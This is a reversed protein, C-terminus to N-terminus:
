RQKLGNLGRIAQTILSCGTALVAQQWVESSPCFREKMMEKIRGSLSSHGQAFCYLWNDAQLALLIKPVSETGFEAAVCTWAGLTQSQDFAQYISGTIEYGVSKPDGLSTVRYDSFWEVCQAFIKTDVKAESFIEVSGSEGLGTHFDLLAGQRISSPLQSVFTRLISNCWTAAKGGFIIGNPYDYQGRGVAAKFAAVKEPTAFWSALDPNIQDITTETLDTPNLIHSLISYETNNPLRDRHFDIFNRNLDVNEHTVRRLWAFGYPNLAHVLYVSTTEGTEGHGSGALWATQCASGCFGEVGHTGSVVVIALEPQLPGIRAVDVYLQEGDPGVSPYKYSSIAADNQTAAELFRTRAESYSESFPEM